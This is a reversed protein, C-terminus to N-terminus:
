HEDSGFPWGHELLLPIAPAAASVHLMYTGPMSAQLELVWAIKACQKTEAIIQAPVRAGTPDYLRLEAERDLFLALPGPKEVRLGLWPGDELSATYLTHSKALTGATEKTAGAAIKAYPGFTTHGCAHALSPNDEEGGPELRVNPTTDRPELLWGRVYGESQRVFGLYRGQAAFAVLTADIVDRAIVPEPSPAGAPLVFARRRGAHDTMGGLVAGAADIDFAEASTAGAPLILADEGNPERRFAHLVGDKVAAGVVTGRDDVANARLADADRVHIIAPSAAASEWQVAVPAGAIRGEGVTVGSANRGYTISESLEGVALFTRSGHSDVFARRPEGEERVYGVVDDGVARHLCSEKPETTTANGVDIFGHPLGGVSRCGLFRGGEDLGWLFTDEEEPPDVLPPRADVWRIDYPRGGVFAIDAPEVTVELVARGLEGNAGLLRVHSRHRGAFYRDPSVRVSANEAPVITAGPEAERVEVREIPAATALLDAIRITAAVNWPMKATVLPGDSPAEADSENPPGADDPREDVGAESAVDPTADLAHPPVNPPGAPADASSDGCALYGLAMTAMAFPALRARTRASM